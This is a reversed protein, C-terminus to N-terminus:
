SRKRPASEEKGEDALFVEESFGALRDTRVELCLLMKAVQDPEDDRGQLLATLNQQSQDTLLAGERLLAAKFTNPIDVGLAALKACDRQRRSVYQSLTEERKKNGEYMASRFTQRREDGERVGAKVSLVSIIEDLYQPSALIADPIHDFEVAAGMGLECSKEGMRHVPVDTAKDWRKVAQVWYRRYQFGPWTPPDSYDGKSLEM